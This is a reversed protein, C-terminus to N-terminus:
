VKSLVKNSRRYHNQGYLKQINNSKFIEVFQNFLDDIKMTRNYAVSSYILIIIPNVEKYVKEILPNL